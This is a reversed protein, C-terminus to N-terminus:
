SSSFPLLSSISGASASSVIELDGLVSEAFEVGSYVGRCFRDAGDLAEVIVGILILPPPDPFFELFEEGRLFNYVTEAVLPSKYLSSSISFRFCSKSNLPRFSFSTSFWSLSHM